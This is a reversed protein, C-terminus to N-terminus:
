SKDLQQNNGDDNKKKDDGSKYKWIATIAAFAGIIFIVGIGGGGAKTGQAANLLGIIMTLGILVLITLVIKTVTNM